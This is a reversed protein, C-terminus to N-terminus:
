CRRHKCTGVQRLATAQLLRGVPLSTATQEVASLGVGRTILVTLQRLTSPLHQLFDLCTAEGELREARLDLRRLPMISCPVAWMPSAQMPLLMLLQMVMTQMIQCVQGLANCWQCHCRAYAHLANNPPIIQFCRQQYSWVALGRSHQATFCNRRARSGLTM